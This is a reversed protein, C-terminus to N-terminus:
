DNQEYGGSKFLTWTPDSGENLELCPGFFKCNNCNMKNPNPYITPDNLMERSENLIYQYQIDLERPTRYVFTRRIFEPENEKLWDLFDAYDSEPLNYEDIAELYLEYSTPQSKDKSLKGGKLVRPKSPYAKRLENYMFGSVDYGLQRAAWCYSSIQTDVDLFSLDDLRAATKHDVIFIEGDFEVILDIKGEYYVWEGNSLQYLPIEFKKEVELVKFRDYKEAYAAYYNLMGRALDTLNEFDEDDLMDGRNEELYELAAVIAISKRAPIDKEQNLHFQELGAHVASGFYLNNDETTPQLNLRNASTFDWLRRCKKFTTRESTRINSLTVGEM